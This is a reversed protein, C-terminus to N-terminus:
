LDVQRPVGFLFCLHCSCKLFLEDGDLRLGERVSASTRSNAPSRQTSTANGTASSAM